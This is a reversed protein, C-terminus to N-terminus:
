LARLVTVVPSQLVATPPLANNLLVAPSLVATPFLAIAALVDPENFTATPFHAKAVFVVPAFL